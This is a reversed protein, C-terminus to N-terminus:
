VGFIPPNVSMTTMFFKRTMVGDNILLKRTYGVRVPDWTVLLTNNSPALSVIEDFPPEVARTDGYFTPDGLVPQV